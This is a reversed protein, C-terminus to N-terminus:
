VFHDGNKKKEIITDVHRWFLKFEKLIFEKSMKNLEEEIGPKLLVINPHSTANTKNELISWMAYDPPNFDSSLDQKIVTRVTKKHVKLKNAHKRISTTLGKKFTYCISRRGPRATLHSICRHLYCTCGTSSIPPYGQCDVTQVSHSNHRWLFCTSTLYNYLGPAVPLWDTQLCLKFDTTGTRPTLVLEWCLSPGWAGPQALWSFPFSIRCYGSFSPPWYIATKTWDGVWRECM